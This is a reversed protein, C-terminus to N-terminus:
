LELDSKVWIRQDDRRPGYQRIYGGDYLANIAWTLLTGNMDKFVRHIEFETAGIIREDAGRRYGKLIYEYVTKFIKRSDPHGIPLEDINKEFEETEKKAKKKQAVLQVRLREKISM